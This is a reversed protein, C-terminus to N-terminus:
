AYLTTIYFPLPKPFPHGKEDCIKKFDILVEIICNYAEERTVEFSHLSPIEICSGVWFIEGDPDIEKRILISYNEPDFNM